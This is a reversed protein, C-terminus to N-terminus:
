VQYSQQGAAQQQQWHRQNSLQGAAAPQSSVPFLAPYPSSAVMPDPYYPYHAYVPQAPRSQYQAPYQHYQASYSTVPVPYETKITSLPPSSSPQQQYSSLTHYTKLPSAAPQATPQSYLQQHPSSVPLSVPETSTESLNSPANKLAAKERDVDQQLLVLHEWLIDGVFVPARSCFEEKTLGCMEKGTM